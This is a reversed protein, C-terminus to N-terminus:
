GFLNLAKVAEETCSALYTRFEAIVKSSTYTM